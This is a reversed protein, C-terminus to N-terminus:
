QHSTVISRLSNLLSDRDKMQREAEQWDFPGRVYKRTDRPPNPLDLNKMGIESGYYIVPSGPSGFLIKFVDLIKEKNGKFITALRMSVGKGGRFSYKGEPDLWVLLEERESENLPTFTVEDHNSIFTAWQCNEPIKSSSNIVRQILSFDNRKLALYINSMLGFHFVMHCEDGPVQPSGTSEVLEGGQAVTSHASGGFYKITEETRGGAEALFIVEPYNKDLYIRLKKIIQHTEPLHRCDTGERKILHGIADLRFGNIGLKAWFDIIKLAENFVEPNDWNLDAQEKFFTAFYYDETKDNFVWNSETIHSFPNYAQSFEKGTKSWMFYNRKPNDVSSSAEKFWPHEISVHNLVFDIITRIGMSHAEDIFHRFDELTGLDSRIALYDSVDYGDDFMPSPYHPLLWICNIGLNKLYDLKETMGRFNGAFKDVYVEYIIANKWWMEM